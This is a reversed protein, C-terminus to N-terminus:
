AKGKADAMRRDAEAHIASMFPERLDELLLLWLVYPDDLATLPKGAFKGFPMITTM